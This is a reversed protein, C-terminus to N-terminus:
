KSHLFLDDSSIPVTGSMGDVKSYTQFTYASRFEDLIRFGLLLFDKDLVAFNRPQVGSIKFSRQFKGYHDFVSITQRKEWVYLADYTAHIKVPEMLEGPGQGPRGFGQDFSGDPKWVLIRAKSRDAVFLAGRPSFCMSYPFSLYNNGSDPVEFKKEMIVDTNIEAMLVSLFLFLM